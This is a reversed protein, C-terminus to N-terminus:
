INRDKIKQLPYPFVNQISLSCANGSNLSSKIEEHICSQNTVTTGLYKVEVVNELSKNAILLIQDQEADPPSVYGLWVSLKRQTKKYVVRGVLSLITTLVPASIEWIIATRGSKRPGDQSAFSFENSSLFL